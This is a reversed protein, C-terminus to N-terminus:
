VATPLREVVAELVQLAVASQRDVLSRFSQASIWLAHVPSTTTVTATRPIKSVLAIEGFFDGPGLTRVHEAGQTVEATGELLVFFEYGPRGERMLVKGERLDIEEAIGAVEVLNQKSCHEFLPVKQLM